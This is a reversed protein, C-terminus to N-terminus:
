VRKRKTARMLRWWPCKRGAPVNMEARVSRIESIAGILWGIEAMADADVLDRGTEALPRAHSLRRAHRNQGMIRGDCVAHVTCCGCRMTSRGNPQRRCKLKPMLTMARCFPSALEVYWDCFNNWIFQYVGNAADNFRYSRHSAHRHKAGAGSRRCDLADAAPQSPPDFDDAEFCGNM